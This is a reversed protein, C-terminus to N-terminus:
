ATAVPIIAPTQVPASTRAAHRGVISYAGKYLKLRVIGAVRAQAALVFADLAHRLPSFWRGRYIIDAYEASVTRAFREFDRSASVKRLDRHGAHLLVAAPAEAVERIRTTGVRHEVVDIRGVGHASAITGLSAILELIPMAVGNISVPLGQEYAIEVYAPEDPCERAPKTLTFSDEPPEKWSDELSPCEISRGWLNAEARCPGEAAPPISVGHQRAYELTAPRSLGSDRAPALVKVKPHLARMLVDLAVRKGSGGGGHAVASAHEIEAIEGLKRAILPRGLSSAMPSRDDYLADARLSPLIFDNAFEERLDLVHARVAGTALARDRVAELERGQGLDMTVAVIEAHYKAKLWPIAVSTDLGGSYALVIREM